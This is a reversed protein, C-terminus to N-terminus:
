DEKFYASKYDIEFNLAEPSIKEYGYDLEYRYCAGFSEKQNIIKDSEYNLYSKNIDKSYGKKTIKLRFSISNVVKDSDNTFVVLLPYEKNCREINYTATVKVKEQEAAKKQSDIYNYIIVALILLAIAVFLFLAIKVIKKIKQKIKEKDM